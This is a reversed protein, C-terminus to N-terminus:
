NVRIVKQNSGFGSFVQELIEIESISLSKSQSCKSRRDNLVLDQAAFGHRQRLTTLGLSAVASIIYSASLCVYM